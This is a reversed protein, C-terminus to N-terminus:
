LYKCNKIYIYVKIDKQRNQSGAKRFIGEMHANVRLIASMENVVIPINLTSGCCIVSCSPVKILPAGFVTKNDQLFIINYKYYQCM